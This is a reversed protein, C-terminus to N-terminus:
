NQSIDSKYDSECCGSDSSFTSVTMIGTNTSRICSDSITLEKVLETEQDKVGFEVDTAKIGCDAVVSDNDAVSSLHECIEKPQTHEDSTVTTSHDEIPVPVPSDDIVECIEKPQTHEDSTVTTSHDEKPVPVPFDDIVECIEKPQTHEDSTVTTSHDGKQVPVPLDDIVECIEKPQTHEDSTVTTSHDGKQVPVPLDDIVECIEKTQTHEDSTVTTSHDDKKVPVPLDDIVECIEKPQTHEDSTVTTSPDGKQVPVPLDDILKLETLDSTMCSTEEDDVAHGSARDQGEAPGTGRLTKDEKVPTSTSLSKPMELTQLANDVEVDPGTETGSSSGSPKALSIQGLKTYNDIRNAEIASSEETIAVTKACRTQNSDTCQRRDNPTQPNAVLDTQGLIRPDNNLKYHKLFHPYETQFFGLRKKFLEVDKKYQVSNSKNLIRAVNEYFQGNNDDESFCLDKAGTLTSPLSYDRKDKPKTHVVYLSHSGMKVVNDLSVRGEFVTWHCKSFSHTAYLFVVTAKRLSFDLEPTPSDDEYILDRHLEVKPNVLVNYKSYKVKEMLSQQFKRVQKDDDEHNIILIEFNDKKLESSMLYKHHEFSCLDLQRPSDQYPKADTEIENNEAMNTPKERYLPVTDLRFTQYTQGSSPTQNDANNQFNSNTVFTQRPTLVYCDLLKSNVDQCNDPTYHIDRTSPKQDELLHPYKDKLFQRRRLSLEKDKDLLVGVNSELVKRIDSYLGENDSEKDYFNLPKLSALIAPLTINKPKGQYVIFPFTNNKKIAAELSSRGQHVTWKDEVFSETAFLFILLTKSLAFDLEPTLTEDELQVDRLLEVIPQALGNYKKYRVNKELLSKFQRVQQEDDDHYIILIEYNDKRLDFNMYNRHKRYHRFNSPGDTFPVADPEIDNTDM